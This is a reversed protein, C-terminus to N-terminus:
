DLGRLSFPEVSPSLGEEADQKTVETSRPLLKKMFSPKDQSATEKLGSAKAKDQDNVEPGDFQYDGTM